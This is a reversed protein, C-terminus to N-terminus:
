VISEKDSSIIKNLKIAFDNPKLVPYQHTGDVDIISCNHMREALKEINAKIVLRDKNARLIYVPMTVANLDETSAQNEISNKLSQAYAYESLHDLEYNTLALEQIQHAAYRPMIKKHVFKSERLKKIGKRQIENKIFNSIDSYKNGILRAQDPSYIVPVNCLILKSVKKPYRKAFRLAVLAGLSHGVVTVQGGIRDRWMAQRLADAQQWTYYDYPKPQPSEGFGLLDYSIVKYNNNLLKSPESWYRGSGGLGHLLVIKKGNGTAFQKHLALNRNFILNYFSYPKPQKM